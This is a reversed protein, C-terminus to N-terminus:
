PRWIDKRADIAAALRDAIVREDPLSPHSNCASFSLGNIPVYGVRAEGSARLQDVVKAVEAEIEGQAKDTAWLLLFAHPNRARLDKLFRVYTQEFDAHLQERTRWAEGDHLATSFDNTGLAVVILQPRWGPQSAPTRHNFLAYPYAQPLTDAAFGNYNRVVGRGSIANVEYDAGYRGALMPGFARSSDTTAWIEDPTCTQKASTDAYGVTHSDGVFEVQRSRRALPAPVTGSAAFFGGFTTPGAQSESAVEVRLHHSGAGLGKVRYAGAAPKVLTAVPRDDALVHLAVEGAGVRFLAADGRFATEFYTAPWQRALGSGDPAPMVRGVVHQPLAPGLSHGADPTLRVAAPLAAAALSLIAAVSWRAIPHLM